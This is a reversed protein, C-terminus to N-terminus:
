KSASPMQYAPAVRLFEGPSKEYKQLIREITGESAL